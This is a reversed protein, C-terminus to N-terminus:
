WVWQCHKTQAIYSHNLQGVTDTGGKTFDYFKM